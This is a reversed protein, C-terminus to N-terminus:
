KVGKLLIEIANLRVVYGERDKQKSALMERATVAIYSMPQGNPGLPGQKRGVQMDPDSREMVLIDIDAVTIKKVIANKESILVDKRTLEEIFTKAM